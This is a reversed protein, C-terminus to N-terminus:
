LRTVAVVESYVIEANDPDPRHKVRVKASLGEIQRMSWGKSTDSTDIGGAELIKGLRINKNIGSSINGEPTLDLLFQQRVSPAQAMGLAAAVNPDDIAWQCTFRKGSGGNRFSVSEVKVSQPVVHAPYEGEPVPTFKSEVQATQVADLFQDPDFDQSM